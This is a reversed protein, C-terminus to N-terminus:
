KGQGMRQKTSQLRENGPYLALGKEIAKEAEKTKGAKLYARGLWAYASGHRDSDGSLSEQAVLFEFDKVAAELRNMFPPMNYNTIARLVRSDFHEPHLLVAKDFRELATFALQGQEMMNPTVRTKYLYARGLQALLDPNEPNGALLEELKAIAADYEGAQVATNLYEKLLDADTPNASLHYEIGPLAEKARAVEEADPLPAAQPDVSESAGVKPGAGLGSTAAARAARMEAKLTDIELRAAELQRELEENLQTVETLRAAEVAPAGVPKAGGKLTYGAAAGLLLCVIAVGSKMAM